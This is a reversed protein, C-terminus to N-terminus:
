RRPCARYGDSFPVRGATSNGTIGISKPFPADKHKLVFLCQPSGDCFVDGSVAFGMLVGLQVKCALEIVGIFGNGLPLASLTQRVHIDKRLDRLEVAHGDAVENSFLLRGLLGVRMKM